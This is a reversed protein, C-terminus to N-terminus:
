GESINYMILSYSIQDSAILSSLLLHSHLLVHAMLWFLFSMVIRTQWCKTRYRERYSIAQVCGQINLLHGYDKIVEDLCHFYKIVYMFSFNRGAKLNQGLYKGPGVYLFSFLKWIWFNRHYQAIFIPTVFSGHICILLRTAIIIFNLRWLPCNAPKKETLVM